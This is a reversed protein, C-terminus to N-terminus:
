PGGPTGGACRPDFDPLAGVGEEDGRKYRSWWRVSSIGKELLYRKSVTKEENWVRGSQRNGQVFHYMGPSPEDLFISAHGHAFWGGYNMLLDGTDLPWARQNILFPSREFTNWDWLM